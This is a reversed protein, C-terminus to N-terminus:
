HCKTYKQIRKLLNLLAKQYTFEYDFLTDDLDFFVAKIGRDLKLVM